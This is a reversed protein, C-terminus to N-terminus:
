NNAINVKQGFPFALVDVLNHTNVGVMQVIRCASNCGAFEFKM